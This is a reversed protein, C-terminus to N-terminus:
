KGRGEERKKGKKKCLFCLRIRKQKDSKTLRVVVAKGKKKFVFNLYVEDHNGVSFINRMYDSMMACMTVGRRVGWRGKVGQRTVQSCCGM